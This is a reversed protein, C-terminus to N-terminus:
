QRSLHKTRKQEYMLSDARSLLDDLSCPHESDCYAMGISLSLIFARNPRASHLALQDHLRKEVLGAYEM